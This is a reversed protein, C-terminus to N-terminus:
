IRASPQSDIPKMRLADMVNRTSSIGRTMTTATTVERLVPTIARMKIGFSLSAMPTITKIQKRTTRIDLLLGVTTPLLLLLTRDEL